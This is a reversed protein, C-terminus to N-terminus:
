YESTKYTSHRKYPNDTKGLKCINDIDFYKSTRIYIYGKQKIEISM